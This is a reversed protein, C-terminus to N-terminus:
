RSPLAQCCACSSCAALKGQILMRWVMAPACLRAVQKHVPVDLVRKKICALMLKWLSVENGLM